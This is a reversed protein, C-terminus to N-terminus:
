MVGIGLILGYALMSLPLLLPHLESRFSKASSKTGGNGTYIVHNLDAVVSFVQGYEYFDVTVYNPIGHQDQCNIAHTRLLDGNIEEATHQNPVPIASGGLAFTTYIFHNLVYMTPPTQPPPPRDVTCTFPGQYPISFPSEWIHDFEYMLWPVTPDYLRDVTSIVRRNSSILEQLTPWPATSNPRWYSMDLLGSQSYPAIFESAAFNDFNEYIITIVERPHQDLWRRMMSLTDVLTGMDLLACTLHCLYMTRESPKSTDLLHVDLMFARVGDELQIEISNWQNAAPNKGVAFANHTTVYSVQSFTRNCLEPYGNCPESGQGLVTTSLFLLALLLTSPLLPM